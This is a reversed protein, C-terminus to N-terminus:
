LLVHDAPAAALRRRGTNFFEPDQGNLRKDAYLLCVNSMAATLSIKKFVRSKKM